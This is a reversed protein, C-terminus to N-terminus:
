EWKNGCESCDYSINCDGYWNQDTENWYYKGIDNMQPVYTVDVGTCDEMREIETSNCKPCHFQEEQESM